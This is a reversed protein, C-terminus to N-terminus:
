FVKAKYPKCDWWTYTKSGKIPLVYEQLMEPYDRIHNLESKYHTRFVKGFSNTSKIDHYAQKKKQAKYKPKM